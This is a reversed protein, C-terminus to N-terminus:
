CYFAANSLDIFIDGGNVLARVIGVYPAQQETRIVAAERWSQRPLCYYFLDGHAFENAKPQFVSTAFRIDHIFDLDCNHGMSGLIASLETAPLDRRSHMFAMLTRNVFPGRAFTLTEIPIEDEEDVGEMAEEEEDEDDEDDEDDDEDEDSSDLRQKKSPAAPARQKPPPRKRPTMEGAGVAEMAEAYGTSSLAFIEFRTSSNLFKFLQDRHDEIVGFAFDLNGSDLVIGHNILETVLASARVSKRKGFGKGNRRSSLGGHARESEDQLHYLQVLAREVSKPNDSLHKSLIAGAHNLREFQNNRQDRWARESAVFSQAALSLM